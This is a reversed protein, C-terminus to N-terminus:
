SEFEAYFQRAERLTTCQRRRESTQNCLTHIVYLPRIQLLCSGEKHHTRVLQVYIPWDTGRVTRQGIVREQLVVDDRRISHHAPIGLYKTPSKM